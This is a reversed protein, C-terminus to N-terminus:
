SPPPCTGKHALSALTVGKGAVSVLLHKDKVVVSTLQMNQPLGSAICETRTALLGSVLSGFPSARLQDVTYNTGGLTVAVPTLLVQGGAAKASLDVTAPLTQGLVTMSTGIRISTGAFAVTANPAASSAVFGSLDSPAVSVTIGITSLPKGTNLPVGTATFVASGALTGSTFRDIKVHIHKIKRQIVQLLVSGSGLDVHVTDANAVGLERAVGVRVFEEAFQRALPEAVLYGAVGLAAIIVLSIITNRLPHRKRRVPVETFGFEELSTYDDM